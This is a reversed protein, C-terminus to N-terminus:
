GRNTDGRLYGFEKKGVIFSPFTYRHNFQQTQHEFRM